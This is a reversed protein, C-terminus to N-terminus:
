SATRAKRSPRLKEAGKGKNTAIGRARKGAMTKGRFARGKGKAVWAMNPYNQVIERDLLIVEFWAYKGDKALQYSNLVECNKFKRISREEAIQQYNKNLIKM